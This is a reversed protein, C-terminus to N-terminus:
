SNESSKKAREIWAKIDAIDYRVSRGIKIPRLQGAKNLSFLTRECVSLVKAAERPTLLIREVTTTNM